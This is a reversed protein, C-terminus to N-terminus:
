FWTGCWPPVPSRFLADARAVADPTHEDVLGAAALTRLTFGGLYVSGLTGVDLTLDAPAASRACTAGDPGADLAYRGAALGGSDVVELVIRGEVPYARAALAASVDLPRVWLFDSRGVPQAHRADALLWPLLDDPPRDEIRVTGVLDLSLLHYWLLADGAPSDTHFMRVQATGLALRSERDGEFEYGAVGVVAGSPDRAAVYLCPRPEGWSPFRLTGFDLDWFRDSRSIQGPRRARDREYVQPALIRATEADV